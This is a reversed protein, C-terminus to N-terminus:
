DFVGHVPKNMSNTLNSRWSIFMIYKKTSDIRCLVYYETRTVEVDCYYWRAGDFRAATPHRTTSWVDFTM